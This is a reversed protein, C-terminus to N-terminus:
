ENVEEELIQVQWHRRMEPVNLSNDSAILLLGAIARTMPSRSSRTINYNGWDRTVVIVSDAEAGRFQMESTVLVGCENRLWVTLEAKGGSSIPPLSPPPSPLPPPPPPPSLPPTPLTPMNDGASSDARRLLSPPLPPASPPAPPQDGDSSDRYEPNGYSNFMEVGADYCRVPMRGKKLHDSLRRASVDQDTLVVCKLHETDLTRLHKTVFMALKKYDVKDPTHKYLWAMPRTGPVTSSSGPSIIEPIKMNSSRAASVSVPSSATAINQSSRMIQKLKVAAFGTRTTMEDLKTESVGAAVTDKDLLFTSSVAALTMSTNHRLWTLTEELESTEGEKMKQVDMDSISLEDM